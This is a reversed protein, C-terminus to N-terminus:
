MENDELITMGLCGKSTLFKIDPLELGELILLNFKERESKYFNKEKIKRKIKIFNKHYMLTDYFTFIKNFISYQFIIFSIM